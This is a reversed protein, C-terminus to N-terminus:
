KSQSTAIETAPTESTTETAEAGQAKAEIIVWSQPGARCASGDYASAQTGANFDATFRRCLQNGELYFESISRFSGKNGSQPNDWNVPVGNGAPDLALALASQSRRADEADMKPSLSPQGKLSVINADSAGKITGTPASPEDAGFMAGLPVSVSCGGLWLAVLGLALMPARAAVIGAKRQLVPGSDAVSTFARHRV